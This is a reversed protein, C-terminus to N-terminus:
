FLAYHVIHPRCTIPSHCYPMRRLCKKSISKTLFGEVYGLIADRTTKTAGDYLPTDLIGCEDFDDADDDDLVPIENESASASSDM